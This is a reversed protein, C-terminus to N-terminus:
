YKRLYAYLTIFADPIIIIVFTYRQFSPSAHFAALAWPILFGMALAALLTIFRNRNRRNARTDEAVQRSEAMAGAVYAIHSTLPDASTGAPMAPVILDSEDPVPLYSFAARTGVRAPVPPATIKRM